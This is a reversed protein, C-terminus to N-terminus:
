NLDRKKFGKQLKNLNYRKEKFPSPLGAYKSSLTEKPLLDTTGKLMNVLLFLCVQATIRTKGMKKWKVRGKEDTCIM